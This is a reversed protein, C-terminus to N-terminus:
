EHNWILRVGNGTGASVGQCPVLDHTRSYWSIKPLSTSHLDGGAKVINFGEPCPCTCLAMRHADRTRRDQLLKGLLISQGPLYRMVPLRSERLFLEGFANDEYIVNATGLIEAVAQTNGVFVYPPLIRPIRSGTFFKAVTACVGFCVALDPRRRYHWRTSNCNTSRSRRSQVSYGHQEM